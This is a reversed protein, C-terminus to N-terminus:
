RRRRTVHRPMKRIRARKAKQEDEDALWKSIVEYVFTVDLTSVDDVDAYLEIFWDTLADNATLKRAELEQFLKEQLMIFHECFYDSYEEDSMSNKSM